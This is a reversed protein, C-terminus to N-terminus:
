DDYVKANFIGTPKIALVVILIFFTLFDKYVSTIYVAILTETASLMFAGLIAGYMNGYGGIIACAFGRLAINYGMTSNVGIRPSILIGATGALIASIGWVVGIIMNVNIGMASAALKDQACARMATGLKTKNMFFALLVMCFISIIFAILSSPVVKVDFLEIYEISTIPPFRFIETGWLLMAANQLIISLAITAIVIFITSVEKKLINRIIFKEILMGIFLMLIMSLLFAVLFPLKIISFFTYGFFAGLMLLEGHVFSLLNTAQYILSFSLAILAYIAGIMLSNVILLIDM